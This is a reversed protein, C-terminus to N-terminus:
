NSGELIFDGTKEDMLGFQLSAFRIRIHQNEAKFGFRQLFKAYDAPPLEAVEIGDIVPTRTGSPDLGSEKYPNRVWRLKGDADISAVHKGDSEVYFTISTRPDKYTFSRALSPDWPMPTVSNANCIAWFATASITAITRRMAGGLSTATELDSVEFHLPRCRNM